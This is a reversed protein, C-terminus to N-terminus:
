KTITPQLAEVIVLNRFYNSLKLNYFAGLMSLNVLNYFIM